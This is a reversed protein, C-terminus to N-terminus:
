CTAAELVVAKTPRSFFGFDSDRDSREITATFRVHDGEKVGETYVYEDNENYGGGGSISSPVSGWLRCDGEQVLMKFSGGYNNEVWKTSVVVGTVERRGTVVEARNADREDAEALLANVADAEVQGATLFNTLAEVAREIRIRMPDGHRMAEARAEAAAAVQDFGNAEWQAKAADIRANSEIAENRAKVNRRERARVSSVKVTQHGAGGCWFCWTNTGNGNNWAANSPGSYVGTGGCRGCPEQVTDTGKLGPHPDRYEIM